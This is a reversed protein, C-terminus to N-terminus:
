AIVTCGTFRGIRGDNRAHTLLESKLQSGSFARAFEYDDFMQLSRGFVSRRKGAAAAVRGAVGLVEDGVIHVGAEFDGAPGINWGEAVIVGVPEDDIRRQKGASIEWYARHTQNGAVREGM